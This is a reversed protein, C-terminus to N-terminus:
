LVVNLIYLQKKCSSLFPKQAITQCHSSRSNSEFYTMMSGTRWRLDCQDRERSNGGIVIFFFLWRPRAYCAGCSGADAYDRCVRGATLGTRSLFMVYVSISLPGRRITCLKVDGDGLRSSFSFRAGGLWAWVHGITQRAHREARSKDNPTRERTMIWARNAVIISSTAGIGTREEWPIQKQM